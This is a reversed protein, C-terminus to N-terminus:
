TDYHALFYDPNASDFVVVTLDPDAEILGVLEFLEAVTTATVTNIPPHDFTVRCYTPTPREVRLHVSSRSGAERTRGDDPSSPDLSTMALLM